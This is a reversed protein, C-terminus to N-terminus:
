YHEVACISFCVEDTRKLWNEFDASLACGCISFGGEGKDAKTSM